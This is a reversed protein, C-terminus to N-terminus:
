IGFKNSRLSVDSELDIDQDDLYNDDISEDRQPLPEIYHNMPFNYFNDREKSLEFFGQRDIGFIYFLIYDLKGVFQKLENYELEKNFILQTKGNNDDNYITLQVLDDEDFRNEYDYARCFPPYDVNKGDYFKSLVSLDIIREQDLVRSPELKKMDSLKGLQHDDALGRNIAVPEPKTLIEDGLLLGYQKYNELNEEEILHIPEYFENKAVSKEPIDHTRINQKPFLLKRKSNHPIINLPKM